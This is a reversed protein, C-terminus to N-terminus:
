CMCKLVDRTKDPTILHVNVQLHNLESEQRQQKTYTARFSISLSTNM